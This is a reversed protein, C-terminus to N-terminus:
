VRLRGRREQVHVLALVLVLHRVLVVQLLAQVDRREVQLVQDVLFRARLICRVDRERLWRHRVHVRRARLRHGHGRSSLVDVSHRERLLQRLLISPGQDLRRCSSAGRLLVQLYLPCRLQHM